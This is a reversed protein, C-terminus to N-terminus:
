IHTHTPTSVKQKVKKGVEVLNKPLLVSPDPKAGPELVKVDALDMTGESKIPLDFTQM